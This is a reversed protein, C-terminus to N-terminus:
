EAIGGQHGPAAWSYEEVEMYDLLARNFPPLLDARYRHVAALIRGALFPATDQLLWIFENAAALADLDLNHDEARDAMLVIPVRQNHARISAILGRAEVPDEDDSTWDICVADIAADSAVVAEGDEFSESELVEIGRAQLEAVMDGVARGRATHPAGLQEDVVLIRTHSLTNSRKIM